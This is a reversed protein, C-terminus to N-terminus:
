GTRVGLRQLTDVYAQPDAARDGRLVGNVAQVARDTWGDARAQAIAERVRDLSGNVLRPELQGLQEAIGDAAERHAKARDCIWDAYVAEADELLVTIKDEGDNDVVSRLYAGPQKVGDESLKTILATAQDYDGGGHEAVIRRALEEDVQKRTKRGSRKQVAGAPTTSAGAVPATRTTKSKAAPKKSTAVDDDDEDLPWPPSSSSSSPSPTSIELDKNKPEEECDKTVTRRIPGPKGAAPQGVDPSGAAPNEAGPPMPKPRFQKRRLFAEDVTAKPEDFVYSVTSLRGTARDRVKTHVLYGAAQLEKLAVRVADRGEQRRARALQEASTRWNDPRSLIDILVGSARYSLREDRIVDNRITTFNSESRPARIISM